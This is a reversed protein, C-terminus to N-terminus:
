GNRKIEAIEDRLNNIKAMYEEYKEDNGSNKAAKALKRYQNVQRWLPRTAERIEAARQEEESLEQRTGEYEGDEDDQTDTDGWMNKILGFSGSMGSKGLESLTDNGINEGMKGVIGAALGTATLVASGAVKGVFGLLGM